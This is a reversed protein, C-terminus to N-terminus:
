MTFKLCALVVCHSETESLFSFCFVIKCTESVHFGLCSRFLSLVLYVGIVVSFQSIILDSSM